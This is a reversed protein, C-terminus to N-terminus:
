RELRKVHSLPWFVCEARGIVRDATLMGWAHSDFSQNRNDGMVFFAGPPVIRPPMDYETDEAVYCEIVVQGNRLVRGPEIHVRQGPRGCALAFEQPTIRRGGLYLADRTLRLPPPAPADSSATDADVGLCARIDNHSYTTLGVTVYGADVEISDGPIGVLRKIFEKEDPAAQPPARFVLVDGRQPPNFRYVWKNVLIHDGEWLTPHMSGSPIFFSQVVFPRLLLFVLVIALMASELLDAVPRLFGIRSARLGGRLATMLALVALISSLSVGAIRETLPELHNQKGKTYEAFM